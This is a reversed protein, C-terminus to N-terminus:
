SLDIKAFKIKKSAVIVDDMVPYNNDDLQVNSFKASRPLINLFHNYSEIIEDQNEIIQANGKHVEGEITLKVGGNVKLNKWWLHTTDAFSFITNGKKVYSVPTSLVRGSKHGVYEIIMTNKSILSHLPSRLLLKIIPNILNFLKKM